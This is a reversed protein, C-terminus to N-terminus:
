LYECVRPTSVLKATLAAQNDPVECTENIVLSTYASFVVFDAITIRSGAIFDGGLEALKGEIQNNFKEFNAAAGALKVPDSDKSMWLVYDRM